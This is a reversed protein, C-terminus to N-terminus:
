GAVPRLSSLPSTFSTSAFLRSPSSSLKHVEFLLCASSVEIRQISCPHLIVLWPNRGPTKIITNSITVTEM